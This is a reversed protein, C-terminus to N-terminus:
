FTKFDNLTKELSVLSNALKTQSKTFAIKDDILRNRASPVSNKKSM